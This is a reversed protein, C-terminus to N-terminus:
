GNMRNSGAGPNPQQAPPSANKANPGIVAVAPDLVPGEPMLALMFAPVPVPPVAAYGLYSRVADAKAVPLAYKYGQDVLYTTNTPTTDGPAPQAQVLAAQGGPMEVFDALKVQDPGIGGNGPAYTLKGVDGTSEYAFIDIGSDAPSRAETTVACVMEPRSVRYVEPKTAPFGDPEYVTGRPALAATAADASIQIPPSGSALLLDRMVAKVPVLGADLLVYDLGAANYVQGIVGPSGEIARGQGGKNAIPPAQLPPGPPISGALGPTVDVTPVATMALATIEDLQIRLRRGHWLVFTQVEDTSSLRVMVMQDGLSGGGPRVGGIVLHTVLDTSNAVPRSCVSWAGKVLAKADPLSDPLGSIGITHGRPIGRLSKASLRQVNPNDNQMALRASTYNLAPFLTGQQYVYTAGTEREIVLAQEPLKAGSPFLFGIIGVAAFVITAVMASGFMGMGFRRMPREATEPEGSLLASVIRRTTFRYAQAQDSRTQM